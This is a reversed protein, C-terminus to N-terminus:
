AADAIAPAPTESAIDETVTEETFRLSMLVGFNGSQDTTMGPTLSDTLRLTAGIELADSLFRPDFAMAPLRGETTVSVQSTAGVTDYERHTLTVHGPKEWTLRVSNSKGKLSRLWAILAAGHSEAVTVSEPLYGPIVNQYNPYHGEITKAIFTHPGSRFQLHTGKDDDDDDAQQVAADRTSFDTHVLVHVATTPLTFSRGPVRAPAGAMRRGDTAILMGGDEPTFHVGNLVYRTADTSACGAVIGIAAFTEKPLATIPGKVVPRAPFEDAAAVLYYVSKVPLGCCSTTLTLMTGEATEVYAFPASSGKDGRAAVKLAEAPILFQGPTLPDIVAPIRTELWHDLDTVALSLGAADITALVHTLVPLTFREFRLRTLLKRAASIHSVSITLNM